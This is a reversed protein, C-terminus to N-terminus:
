KKDTGDNDPQPQISTGPEPLKPNAIAGLAEDTESHSSKPSTSEARKEFNDSPITGNYFHSDYFVGTAPLMRNRRFAIILKAALGISGILLLTGGLKAFLPLMPTGPLNAQNGSLEESSVALPINNPQAIPSVPTPSSASPQAQTNNAPSKPTSTSTPAPTTMSSPPSTTTAPPGTTAPPQTVTPTSLAYNGGTTNSLVSENGASPATVRSQSTYNVAATGTGALAKFSVTMVLLDSGSVTPSNDPNVTRRITINGSGGSSPFGLGFASGSDSMSVYQLKDAPYTLFAEVGDVQQGATDLRVQVSFSSDKLVTASAPAVFLTPGSAAAGFRLLYQGAFGLLLAFVGMKILDTRTKKIHKKHKKM